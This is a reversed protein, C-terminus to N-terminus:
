FRVRFGGTRIRVACNTKVTNRNIISERGNNVIRNDDCDPRNNINNGGINIAGFAGGAVGVTLSAAGALAVVAKRVKM